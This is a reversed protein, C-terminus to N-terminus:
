DREPKAAPLWILLLTTTLAATTEYGLAVTFAGTYTAAEAAGTAAPNLSGFFLIGVVAVGFAGGVQQMTSVLGSAAGADSAPVNGLIMNLLPTILLGQGVGIALLVPVLEVGQLAGGRQSTTAATLAYAITLVIGGSVLVARSTRPGLRGAVFSAAVYALAVPTILLGAAFPTSKLGTQLVYALFVYFSNLSTYLILAALVGVVFARNLFLRVDLLPSDERWSKRYQHAGFAALAPFAAALLALTWLPWGAERGEILPYLLLSLATTCLAVGVLDFRAASPSRSEAILHPAALAAVIGIPLNILFIPRWGMGWVDAHVLLGGLIQGVVAALGQTAGFMAFATARERADTFAVRMLSFVQPFMIAAALGQLLRGAVLLRATPALGCLASTATFAVLGIILMRRRGFRDGMRGGTILAVAYTLTYGAVVLELEASSAHLDDRISPLAINVIFVDTIALFAGALMVMLGLWRRSRARCMGVAPAREQLALPAASVQRTM